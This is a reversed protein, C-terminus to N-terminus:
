MSLPLFPLNRHRFRRGSVYAAAPPERVWSVLVSVQKTFSRRRRSLPAVIVEFDWPSLSPPLSVPLFPPFSPLFSTSLAGWSNRGRGRQYMCQHTRVINVRLVAATRRRGEPRVAENHILLVVFFKLSVQSLVSKPYM